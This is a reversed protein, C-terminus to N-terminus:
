GTMVAQKCVCLVMGETPEYGKLKLADEPHIEVGCPLADQVYPQIAPRVRLRKGVSGPIDFSGAHKYQCPEAPARVIGPQWHIM